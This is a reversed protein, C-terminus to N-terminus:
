IGNLKVSIEKKILDVDIGTIYISVSNEMSIENLYEFEIKYEKLKEKDLSEIIFNDDDATYDLLVKDLSKAKLEVSYSTLELELSIDVSIENIYIDEFATNYVNIDLYDKHTFKQSIKFTEM